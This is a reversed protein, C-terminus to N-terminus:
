HIAVRNSESLQGLFRKFDYFQATEADIIKVGMKYDQSAKSVWVVRALCKLSRRDPGFHLNLHIVCEEPWWRNTNILFGGQSINSTTITLADRHLVQLRGALCVRFRRFERREDSYPQVRNKGAAKARYLANDAMRILDEADKTDMPVSAVGVSVTLVDRLETEETSIFTKEVKARIKEAVQLAGPKPTAPLIIAFEEGGYRAVVDVERVSEEFLCALSRLAQNGQEHGHRDNFAKFDDADLM